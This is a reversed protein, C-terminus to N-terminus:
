IPSGLATTQIVYLGYAGGLFRTALFEQGYRSSHEPSGNDDGRSSPDEIFGTHLLSAEECLNDRFKKSKANLKIYDLIINHGGIIM